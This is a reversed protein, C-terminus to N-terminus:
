NAIPPSHPGLGPAAPLLAVMRSLAARENRAELGLDGARQGAPLDAILRALGLMRQVNAQLNALGEADKLIEGPAGGILTTPFGGGAVLMRNLLMNNLLQNYVETHAYRRAVVVACGVKNMLPREFRLYGVGAREIFIQMLHALGYGHVPAIYVLADAQVMQAILGPMDDSQACPTTRSNCDGCAACPNLTLDRLCTIRVQGGAAEVQQRIIEAALDCNGGARESGSIIHIILPKGSM